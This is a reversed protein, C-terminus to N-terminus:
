RAIALVPVLLAGVFGGYRGDQWYWTGPQFAFIFPLAAPFQVKAFVQLPYVGGADSLSKSLSAIAQNVHKVYDNKDSSSGCGAVVLGLAVAAVAAPRSFSIFTPM